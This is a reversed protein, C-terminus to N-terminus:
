ARLVAAQGGAVPEYQYSYRHPDDISWRFVAWGPRQWQAADVECAGGQDCCSGLPPPPGAPEQPLRGREKWVVEVRDALSGPLLPAGRARERRRWGRGAGRCPGLSRWVPRVLRSAARAGRW